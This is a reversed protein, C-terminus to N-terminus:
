IGKLDVPVVSLNYSVDVSFTTTAGKIQLTHNGVPLPKLMLYFGDDVSPSCIGSPPCAATPSIDFINDEPLSLEFVISRVRFKRDIRAIPKGDLKVSIATTDDILAAVTDRLIAISDHQTIDNAIFNNLVPFFLAKGEPVNCSRSVPTSNGVTGVLFWVPGRQGVGCKDGTIDLLPNENTPISLAFQWWQASWEKFKINFPSADPSYYIKDADAKAGNLFALTTLLLVAKLSIKKSISM